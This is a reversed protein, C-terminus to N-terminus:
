YDWPPCSPLSGWHYPEPADLPVHGLGWPPRGWGASRAKALSAQEGVPARPRALASDRAAEVGEGAGQTGPPRAAPEPPLAPPM